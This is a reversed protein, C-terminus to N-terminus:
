YPALEVGFTERLGQYGDDIVHVARSPQACRIWGLEAM